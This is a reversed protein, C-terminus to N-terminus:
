LIFAGHFVLQDDAKPLSYQLSFSKWLIFSVQVVVTRYVSQAQTIDM